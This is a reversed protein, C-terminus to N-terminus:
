LNKLRMVTTYTGWTDVTFTYNNKAPLQVTHTQKTYGNNFPNTIIVLAETGDASLKYRCLPVQNAYLSVPYNGTGTTFNSNKYVGPVLWSTNAEVIDKNQAVQFYGAYAWDVNSKGIMTIDGCYLKLVQFDGNMNENRSISLDLITQRDEGIYGVDWMWLGDAYAMGWVAVSQILSPSVESRQGDMFGDYNLYQRCFDFDSSDIPEMQRWFYACVRKLNNPTGMWENIMKKTIDYCHVLNYLYWTENIAMQYNSIYFYEYVSLAGRYYPNYQISSYPVTGSIYYNNYDSYLATNLYNAQTAYRWGNGTAESGEFSRNYPGVGYNSNLPIAAGAAGQGLEVWVAQFAASWCQAYALGANYSSAAVDLTEFDYEVHPGNVGDVYFYGALNATLNDQQNPYGGFIATTWHYPNCETFKIGYSSYGNAWTSDDVILSEMMSAIRSTWPQGPYVSSYSVNYARAIAVIFPDDNVFWWRQANPVGEVYTTGNYATKWREDAILSLGKSKRTSTRSTFTVPNVIDNYPMAMDVWVKQVGNKDNLPNISPMRRFFSTADFSSSPVWYDPKFYYTRNNVITSRDPDAALHVFGYSWNRAVFSGNNYEGSYIYLDYGKMDSLDINTLSSSYIPGNNIAWRKGYTYPRSTWYNDTLLYSSLVLDTGGISGTNPYKTSGQYIKDDVWNTDASSTMLNVPAGTLKGDNGITAYYSTYNSTFVYNGAPAITTKATNTYFITNLGVNLDNTYLISSSNSINPNILKARADAVSSYAM